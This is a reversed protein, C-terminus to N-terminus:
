AVKICDIQNRVKPPFHQFPEFKPLQKMKEWAISQSIPIPLIISTIKHLKEIVILNERYRGIKLEWYYDRNVRFIQMPPFTQM